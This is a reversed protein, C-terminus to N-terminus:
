LAAPAGSHRRRRAAGWLAGASAALVLTGTVVTILAGLRLPLPEYRFAVQHRGEPVAVARFMGNALRLPQPAGDVYARWWPDHTDALFLWSPQVAAVDVVVEEGAYRVVTAEGVPSRCRKGAEDGAVVLRPGDCAVCEDGTPEAADIAGVSAGGGTSILRVRQGGMWADLPQWPGELGAGDLADILVMREPDFSREAMQKVHLAQPVPVALPVLYARPLAQENRYVVVDGDEGVPTFRDRDWWTLSHVWWDPQGVGLGYVRLIAEPAAPVVAPEVSLRVITRPSPLPLKAYYFHVKYARGTGPDHEQLWFVPLPAVGPQAGGQAVSAAPDDGEAAAPSSAPPETAEGIEVGMRLPWRYVRGEADAATVWAMTVGAPVGVADRMTAIVRINEGAVSPVRFNAASGANAASGSVLPRQPHFSTLEHSPLPNPKNPWVLYRVNWVDLMRGQSLEAAWAYAMNVDASLSSYGGAEQIGLPLLVNPEVDSRDLYVPQSTYVRYLPRAEPPQADPALQAQLLAAARSDPEIADIAAAPHAHAAASLLPLAVVAVSV